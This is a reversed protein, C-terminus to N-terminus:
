EVAETRWIFKVQGEMDGSLGAFSQYRDSVDRVAELRDRLEKWDGNVADALKQIGQEDFEKLGDSLAMAGDRLQTVGEVLAPSGDKLTLIGGYLQSAGTKLSATGSCLNDAGGSLTEAGQASQAVGATYGQLSRYFTDYSDLSGKLTAVQEAAPSGQAQAAAIASDLVQAYNDVTLPPLELGAAALQSNATALLNAFVQGAGANLADNNAALTNLGDRLSAAGAQLQVAGADLQDAGNKLTEAGEALQGIGATLENSRELLTCLGDYLQSSGDLLQGMADTLETVSGDLGDLEGLADEEALGDFLQNSAMTVTTELAFDTVDATVEVYDPLELQEPDLGLSEQLGPFALGAVVTRSGDNFLKGNSVEVNVFRNSDLLLGTLMTFPVYIKEQRGAIEVTEFQRNDYDFRIVVRGSQGALEEPTVPQGDLTYSVTVGVPLEKDVVGQCYIDNGQADWVCTNDGGLTFSEYGKVNEIGTMETEVSLEDSGLRNQIWSSVIVKQIGGAADTLVYVTEDQANSVADPTYSSSAPLKPPTSVPAPVEAAPEAEGNALVWTTGGLALLACLSVSLIRVFPKKM